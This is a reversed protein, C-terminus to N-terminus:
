QEENLLHREYWQVAQAYEHLYYYSRAIKLDIGGRKHGHNAINLYTTLADRFSKEQFYEDARKMESKLLSFVSEQCMAAQTRFFCIFTIILLTGNKLLERGSLHPVARIKM